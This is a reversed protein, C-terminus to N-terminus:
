ACLTKFTSYNNRDSAENHTHSLFAFLPQVPLPCNSIYPLAFMGCDLGTGHVTCNKGMIISRLHVGTVFYVSISQQALAAVLQSKLLQRGAKSWV